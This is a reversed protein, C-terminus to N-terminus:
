GRNPHNKKNSREAGRTKAGRGPQPKRAIQPGEHHEVTKRGTGAWKGGDPVAVERHDHGAKAGMSRKMSTRKEQTSEGASNVKRPM